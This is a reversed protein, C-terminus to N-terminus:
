KAYKIIADVWTKVLYLSQYHLPEERNVSPYWIRPAQGNVLFGYQIKVTYFEGCPRKFKLSVFPLTRDFDKGEFGWGYNYALSEVVRIAMLEADIRDVCCSVSFNKSIGANDLTIEHSKIKAHLEKVSLTIVKNKNKHSRLIYKHASCYGRREKGIVTFLEM